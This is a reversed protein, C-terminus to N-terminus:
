RRREVYRHLARPEMRQGFPLEFFCDPVVFPLGPAESKAEEVFDLVGDVKEPLMGLGSWPDKSWGAPKHKGPKGIVQDVPWECGSPQSDQSDTMLLPPRPIPNPTPSM